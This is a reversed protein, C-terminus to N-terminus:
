PGASEGQSRPALHAPAPRQCGRRRGQHRQNEYDGGRPSELVLSNLRLVLPLFTGPRQVLLGSAVLGHEGGALQHFLVLPVVRLRGDSKQLALECCFRRSGPPISFRLSAPHDLLDLLLQGTFLCEGGISRSEGLKHVRSVPGEHVIRPEAPQVEATM